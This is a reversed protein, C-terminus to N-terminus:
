GGALARNYATEFFDPLPVIAWSGDANLWRLYSYASHQDYAVLLPRVTRAGLYLPQPKEPDNSWPKAPKVYRQVHEKALLAVALRVHKFDRGWILAAGWEPKAVYQDFTEQVLTMLEVLIEAVSLNSWAPPEDSSLQNKSVFLALLYKYVHDMRREELIAPDLTILPNYPTGDPNSFLRSLILKKPPNNLDERIISPEYFNKNKELTFLDEKLIKSNIYSDETFNNNPNFNGV